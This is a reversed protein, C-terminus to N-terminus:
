VRIAYRIFQKHLGLLEAVPTKHSLACERGKGPM